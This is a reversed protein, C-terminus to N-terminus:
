VVPAGEMYSPSSAGQHRAMHGLSVASAGLSATLAVGGRRLSRGGWRATGRWTRHEIRLTSGLGELAAILGERAITFPRGSETPFLPAEEM